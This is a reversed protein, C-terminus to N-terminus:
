ARQGTRLDLTFPVDKDTRLSWGLGHLLHGDLSQITIGEDSLRGSEWLMGEQGWAMMAYHSTFLLLEQGPLMRVDMVPRFPIQTFEEPRLTNVMYAYGGAVACLWDAHPAAWVGSPAAPDHFGLAFTALFPSGEAPAVMLELAGREVDEVAQPYISHRGPLILPRAALIEAKWNHAFELHLEANLTTRREPLLESDM